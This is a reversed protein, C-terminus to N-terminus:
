WVKGVTKITNTYEDKRFLLYVDTSITKVKIKSM